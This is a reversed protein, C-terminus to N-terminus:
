TTTGAIAEPEPQRRPQPSSLRWLRRFWHALGEVGITIFPLVLLTLLTSSILGGMVTRALPFYYIGGVKAGGIALPLLGVVTTTATMLIPRLRDRGAQLIAEDRSLGSRRLQNMHDLLVIGNNVVIGILILLGIQSMINFPTRTIALMWAVGGISFPIAFLIAFPQAMSEFLSAMVIYVLILALAFNLLMQSNEEGQELIRDDWSWSYGPPLEFANMLATIEKQTDAWKEGEYTANVSARIKRDERTIEQPRSVIQFDAIDSLQIAQGDTGGFRLKKLDDLNERDEMRLAIWTEVEKAGANFRPLRLGGLTFDFIRAVDQATLGHKLAKDRDITVQIEQRGRNFSTSIDEVGELTDLRRAAEDALKRLLESDQGFFKVQFYTSDGGSEADEHFYIRAGAVEPFGDRIKQRLDKIERDGLDRRALNLTTQAENETFYSYISEIFFEERHAELYDEVVDVADEAESKYVFDSFEYQIFLLRNVTGSFPSMEVMGAAFPAFGGVLAVLVIVTSWVKHRLTWGLAGVYRGELWRMQRHPRTEKRRLLHASMLPILTLSSLLSCVLAVSITLGVEGLWTTLETGTGVILPLFVIVTTLTSSTVAMSVDRAGILASRKTDPETRHRRDISELVVIANDVLMGVGLMLGMMSLINLSKGMFYLIGCAAIISFPISFSVILTSDLRKLFYLLIVVALLGGMIGSSTLGSIGGTIAEAQDQWVFFSIGQLLPDSDIEEHVVRDVAHVVDVTNATSEKYVDVAIAFKRDLHRGYTIPPEEYEVSAVDSLRLGRDNIAINAISEVSDFAGVARATYRLGGENVQGLVLNATAGQLRQILQGVDVSHQKIKDLELDISIERPLVGGIDVRAVGPVRRLRNLIRAEILDYNRSLDVGEAAIRGQVVPIDNTNFSYIQVEGIGEPLSPKVQEMKESVQMRLIDLDLGWTFELSFEAGDATSTSRLKKVGALTSLVEEVPKAIEKEIQTPNSNPYPINVGIFPIDLTPLFALPLRSLAIGGIVMVSVIGMLTTIPRTVALRPLNM